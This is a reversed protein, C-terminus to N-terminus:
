VPFTSCCRKCNSTAYQGAGATPPAACDAAAWQGFSRVESVWCCSSYDGIGMAGILQVITKV